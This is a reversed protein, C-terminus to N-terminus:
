FTTITFGRSLAVEAWRETEEKSVFQVISKLHEITSKCDSSEGEDNEGMVIANGALISPYDEIVFGGEINEQLLGEDDIFLPDGNKLYYPVTFVRCGNGIHDYMEKYDDITIETFTKNSVNILIAKTKM